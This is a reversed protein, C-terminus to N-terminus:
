VPVPRTWGFPDDREGKRIARLPALLAQRAAQSAFRVTRGHHDVSVVSSLSYATGSLFMEGGDAFVEDITIPREEVEMGLLDRAIRLTSDRTIGGLIQDDAPPTVLVGSRLIVFVNSGSTETLRSREVADLFLVDDFGQERWHRVIPIPGAYNGIAKVDGCLGPAVRAQDLAKLMLGAGKGGFYAGVPSGYITTRFQRCPGLGLRPEDAHLMPRLYFAGEGAAPLYALNARIVAECAAIFGTEPYPAMLLRSASRAFRAAHADIRFMLVRGDATRRAKLGEFVGLGYSLVAAAPSFELPGWPQLGGADWVPDRDLSGTAVFITDTPTLAFALGAARAAAEM